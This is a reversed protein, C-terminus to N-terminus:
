EVEMMWIGGGRGREIIILKVQRNDQGRIEEVVEEVEMPDDPDSDM